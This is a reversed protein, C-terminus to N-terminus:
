KNAAMKSEPLYSDLRQWHTKQFLDKSNIKQEITTKTAKSETTMAVYEVTSKLLLRNLSEFERLYNIKNTHIPFPGHGICLSFKM